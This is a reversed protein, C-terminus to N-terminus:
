RHWPRRWYPRHSYYHHYHHGYAPRVVVAPPPPPPAYVVPEHLPAVVCGTLASALAVGAAIMLTTKM